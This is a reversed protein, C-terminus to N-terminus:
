PLSIKVKMTFLIFMGTMIKNSSINDNCITKNYKALKIHLRTPNALNETNLDEILDQISNEIGQVYVDILDLRPLNRLCILDTGSIEYNQKSKKETM